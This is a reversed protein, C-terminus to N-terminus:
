PFHVTAQQLKPNQSRLVKHGAEAMGNKNREIGWMFLVKLSLLPILLLPTGMLWSQLHSPAARALINWASKFAFGETSSPFLPYFYELHSFTADGSLSLSNM